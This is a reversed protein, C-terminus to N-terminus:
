LPTEINRFAIKHRLNDNQNKSKDNPYDNPCVQTDEYNPCVQTDARNKSQHNTPISKKTANPCGRPNGRGNKQHNPYDNPCGKRNGQKQIPPQPTLQNRRLTQAVALTAGVM